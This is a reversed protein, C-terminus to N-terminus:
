LAVVVAMGVLLGGATSSAGNVNGSSSVTTGLRVAASLELGVGRGQPFRARGRLESMLRYRREVNDVSPSGIGPEHSHTYQIGAEISLGSCVTVGCAWWTPGTRLERTYSEVESSGGGLQAVGATWAGEVHWTLRDRLRLGVGPEVLLVLGPSEMGARAGVSVLARPFSGTWPPWRGRAPDALTPHPTGSVGAVVAAV